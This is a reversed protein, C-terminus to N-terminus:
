YSRPSLGTGAPDLVGACDARGPRHNGDSQLEKQQLGAFVGSNITWLYPEGGDRCERYREGIAEPDFSFTSLDIGEVFKRSHVLSADGTVTACASAFILRALEELSELQRDLVATATETGIGVQYFTREAAVLGDLTMFDFFAPESPAGAHVKKWRYFGSLFSQLNRNIPGLRAFRGLFDPIFRLDTFLDNIFPFTYFVFYISLEWGYKMVFTEQDGLADYSRHFTPLFAEYLARMLQEYIRCKLVRRSRSQTQVADVILTNHIAIFDSGPSYLPDLFRGSEGSMAWGSPHITQSCGHSFDPLAGFNLVKRRPLDREFLPFQRCVWGLLQEASSVDETFLERDYVLGLSTKGQLPIVWFWYGEGMFHNTALWLPLHGTLRRSAKIRNERNGLDNLRDINVLGDVWLFSAGHRIPNSQALQRRRALFRARGSTDVVWDATATSEIGDKRFVVRHSDDEGADVSVLRIGNAQTFGPSELNRRLLEGEIKVRDLQYCAINSFNRIYAQSYDEFQRNSRGGNKWYFRLNYKMYHERLLYEELDLVRSFYYGGVQVLSEGVKERTPPRNRRELLLIRLGPANLLLQRSLSQGALGGGIIVVDYHSM